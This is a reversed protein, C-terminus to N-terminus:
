RRGPHPERLGAQLGAPVGDVPHQADTVAPWAAVHDNTLLLTDGAQKRYAFATGHLVVRRRDRRITGDSGYSLCEYVAANRTCYSFTAEPHHDYDRATAALASFDDAYQGSCVLNAPAKPRPSQRRHM